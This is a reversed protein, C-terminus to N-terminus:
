EICKPENKEISDLFPSSLCLINKKLINTEHVILLLTNAYKFM